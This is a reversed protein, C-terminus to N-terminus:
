ASRDMSKKLESEIYSIEAQSCKFGRSKILMLTNHPITELALPDRHRIYTKIKVFAEFVPDNITKLYKMVREKYEFPYSFNEEILFRLMSPRHFIVAEVCYSNDHYRCTFYLRRGQIILKLQEISGNRICQLALFRVSQNKKGFRKRCHERVADDFAKSTMLIMYLSLYDLSELIKFLLEYPFYDFTLRKEEEEISRNM